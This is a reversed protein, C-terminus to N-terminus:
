EALVIRWICPGGRFIVRDYIEYSVAAANGLAPALADAVRNHVSAAAQWAEGCQM